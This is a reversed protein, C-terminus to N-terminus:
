AATRRLLGRLRGRLVPPVPPLTVDFFRRERANWRLLRDSKRFHLLPNRAPMPVPRRSARRDILGTLASYVANEAHYISFLPLSRRVADRLFAALHADRLRDEGSWLEHPGSAIWGDCETPDSPVVGDFAPYIRLSSAALDQAALISKLRQALANPTATMAPYHAAVLVIGIRSM